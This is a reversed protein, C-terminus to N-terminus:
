RHSGKTLRHRNDGTESANNALQKGARGFHVRLLANTLISDVDKHVNWVHAFISIRANRQPIDLPLILTL